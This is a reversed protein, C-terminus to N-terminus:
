SGKECSCSCTLATKQLKLCVIQVCLKVYRHQIYSITISSLVFTLRHPIKSCSHVQELEFRSGMLCCPFNIQFRSHEFADAASVHRKEGLALPVKSVSVMVTAEDAHADSDAVNLLVVGLARVSVFGFGFCCRWESLRQLIGKQM